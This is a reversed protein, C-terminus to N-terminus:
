LGLGVLERTYMKRLATLRGMIGVMDSEAVHLIADAWMKEFKPKTIKGERYQHFAFRTLTTGIFDADRDPYHKLLLGLSLETEDCSSLNTLTNKIDEFDYM